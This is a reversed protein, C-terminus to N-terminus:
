QDTLQEVAAGAAVEAAEADGDTLPHKSFRAEEYAVTVRDVAGGGGLRTSYERPTEASRKVRGGSRAAALFSRYAAAIRGRIPDEPMWPGHRRSPTSGPTAEIPTRRRIRLKALVGIAAWLSRAAWALFSWVGVALARFVGGLRIEPRPGSRGRAQVAGGVKLALAVATGLVLWVFIEGVRSGPEPGGEPLTDAPSTIEVGDGPSLAQRSGVRELAEALWDGVPGLRSVGVAPLGSVGASFGGAAIALALVLGAVVWASAMWRSRVPGDVVAGDREWRGSSAAYSIRALGLLGVGLFVTVAWFVGREGTRRLTMIGAFGVAGFAAALTLVATAALLRTRVRDVVPLERADDVGSALVNLDGLTAVVLIWVTLGALWGTLSEAEFMSRPFDALEAAALEAPISFLHLVKVGVILAAFEIRRWAKAREPDDLAPATAATEFAVFACVVAVFAPRAATATGLVWGALAGMVTFVGVASM